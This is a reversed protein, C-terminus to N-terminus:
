LIKKTLFADCSASWSDILESDSQALVDDDTGLFMMLEIMLKWGYRSRPRHTSDHAQSTPISVMIMVGDDGM